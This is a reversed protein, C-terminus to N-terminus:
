RAAVPARDHQHRQSQRRFRSVKEEKNSPALDSIWRAVENGHQRLADTVVARAAPGEDKVKEIDERLPDLVEAIKNVLSAVLRSVDEGEDRNHRSWDDRRRKEDENRLRVADARDMDPNVEGDEIAALLTAEPLQALEHLTGWSPPLHSVFKANSLVAHEAINMLMEATRVGFPLKDKIMKGFEGHPLEAKAEMLVRGTELISEVAKQWSAKIKAAYGDVSKESVTGHM